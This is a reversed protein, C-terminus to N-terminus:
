DFRSIIPELLSYSRAYTGCPVRVGVGVAREVLSVDVLTSGLTTMSEWDYSFCMSVPVAELDHRNYRWLNYFEM